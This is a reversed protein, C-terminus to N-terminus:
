EASDVLVYWGGYGWTKDRDGDYDRLQFTINAQKSKITEPSFIESLPMRTEYITVNDKREIHVQPGNETEPIVGGVTVDFMESWNRYIHGHKEEETYKDNWFFDSLAFEIRTDHRQTTVPKILYYFHDDYYFRVPDQKQWHVDDYVIAAAYFYEDDWQAYVTGSFDALGGYDADKGFSEAEVVGANVIGQSGYSVQSKDFDTIKHAKWEAEDIIGDIVPTQNKTKEIVGIATSSRGSYGYTRPTDGLAFDIEEGDATTFIGSYLQYGSSYEVPINFAIDRSEGVGIEPVALTGVEDVIAAPSTMKISGSIPETKNNKVTVIGKWFRTNTNDYPQVIMSVDASDFVYEMPLKLHAFNNGDKEVFVEIHDRYSQIGFNHLRETYDVNAIYGIGPFDTLTPMENVTFRIKAQTGNQILEATINDRAKISVKAGDPVNLNFEDTNGAVVDIVTKDVTVKDECKQFNEGTYEFYMPQESFTFTYKGDNAQLQTPNGNIDYLTGSNAGLDLTVTETDRDAYMMLVRRGDPKKFRYIWVNDDYKIDSEFETNETRAIYNTLAMYTQKPGNGNNTADRGRLMGFYHEQDGPNTETTQLQYLIFKDVWKYAHTQALQRVLNVGHQQETSYARYASTNGETLWLPMDACGAREMGARVQLCYEDWRKMEPTGAEQYLHIAVADCVPEDLAILYRYVWDPADRSIGQSLVVADPNGKKIGRYAAASVIAYEEPSMVEIRAFNLENGLEIVDIIGKYERAYNEAAKELAALAEPSQSLTKYKSDPVYLGNMPAFIGIHEIGLDSAERYYNPTYREAEGKGGYVGKQREYAGWGYDTRLFGLGAVDVAYQVENWRTNRGPHTCSGIYDSKYGPTPVSAVSFEKDKVIKEAGEEKPTLEVFLTYIDYKSVQPKIKHVRSEEEALAVDKETYEWAIDGNYSKAYYSIDYLMDKGYSNTVDVNLEVEGFSTFLNGPYKSSIDIVFSKKYPDPVEVGLADLETKLEKTIEYIALNDVSTVMTAPGETMFSFDAIEKPAASQAVYQNNVFYYIKSEDIDVFINIHKWEDAAYTGSGSISWNSNYGAKGNQMAFSDFDALKKDAWNFRLYFWNSTQSRRVDFSILYDGSTLHEDFVVSPQGASTYGFCTSGDWSEKPYSNVNTTSTFGSVSAPGLNFQEFDLFKIPEATTIKHEYGFGYYPEKEATEGEAFVPLANTSIVGIALISSLFRKLM